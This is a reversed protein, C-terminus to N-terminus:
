NMKFGKSITEPGVFRRMMLLLLLNPLILILSFVAGATAPYDLIVGYMEVPMTRYKPLGVLLTGQNEGMSAIFSFMAAVAIGPWAMPLVTALTPLTIPARRGAAIIRGTAALADPKLELALLRAPDIKRSLSLGGTKEASFGFRSYYAADGVLLM